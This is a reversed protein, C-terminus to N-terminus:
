EEERSTAATFNFIRGEGGFDAHAGLVVAYGYGIGHHVDLEVGVTKRTVPLRGSIEVIRHTSGSGVRAAADGGHRLAFVPQNGYGVVIRIVRGDHVAAQRHGDGQATARLDVGDKVHGFFVLYVPVKERVARTQAAFNVKAGSKANMYIGAGDNAYDGM